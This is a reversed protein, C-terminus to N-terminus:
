LAGSPEHATRDLTLLKHLVRQVTKTTVGFENAIEQHMRGERLREVIAQTRPDLKEMMREYTEQAVFVQSPRPQRCVVMGAEYAASGELSHERNVNNKPRLMRDRMEEIVKNHAMQVLYVVLAEPKDFKINEPQKAFFSAWVSQVFDASDFRARMKVNMRRRVMRLIHPGCKTVLQRAAEPSGQRVGEMLAGFDGVVEPM